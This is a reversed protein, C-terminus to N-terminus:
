IPFPKCEEQELHQTTQLLEIRDNSFLTGAGNTIEGSRRCAVQWALLFMSDAHHGPVLFREVGFFRVQRESLARSFTTGLNLGERPSLLSLRAPHFRTAPYSIGREEVKRRTTCPPSIIKQKKQPELSELPLPNLSRSPHTYSRFPTTSKRSFRNATLLEKGVGGQVPHLKSLYNEPSCHSRPLRPIRPSTPSRPGAPSVPKAPSRPGSPGGPFRPARPDIPSGPSRPAIPIPSCPSLPGAPGVPSTVANLVLSATKSALISAISPLDAYNKM